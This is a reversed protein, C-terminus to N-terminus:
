NMYKMLAADMYRGSGSAGILGYGDRLSAMYESMERIAKKMEKRITKDKERVMEMRMKWILYTLFGRIYRASKRFFFGSISLATVIDIESEFENALEDIDYGIGYKKGEPILFVTLIYNLNETLSDEEKTYNRYDIYQGVSLKKADADINYKKGNISINSPIRKRTKPKERLFQMKSVLSKFENIPLAYLEEPTKDTLVSLIDVTTETSDESVEVKALEKYKAITLREYSDIM